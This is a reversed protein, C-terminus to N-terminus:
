RGPCGNLANNVAKLIKDITIQGATNADGALCASVSLSGLAINVMKLLEAVTVEGGGNCDGVCSKCTASGTDDFTIHMATQNPSVPGCTGFPDTADWGGSGNLDFFARLYYTNPESILSYHGGNSQVGRCGTDVVPDGKFDPDTFVQVALPREPSVSESGTGRYTVTGAIGGPLTCTDNLDLRLNTIGSPPVSIPDRESVPACRNSYLKYPAGPGGDGGSYIGLGYFLYYDGPVPVIFEFGGCDQTITLWANYFGCGDVKNRKESVIVKIPRDASVPGQSGSYCITGSLTVAHGANPSAAVASVVAVPVLALRWQLRGLVRSGFTM